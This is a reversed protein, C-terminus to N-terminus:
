GPRNATAPEPRSSHREAVLWGRDTMRWVDTIFFTGSREGGQVMARQTWSLTVIAVDGYVSVRFDDLTMDQIEYAPMVSLWHERQTVRAPMGQVAIVLIFDDVVMDGLKQIDRTRMANAWAHELEILERTPDPSDSM